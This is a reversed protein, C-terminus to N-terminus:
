TLPLNLSQRYLIPVRVFVATYGDIRNRHAARYVAWLSVSQSRWVLFNSKFLEFKKEDANHSGIPRIM